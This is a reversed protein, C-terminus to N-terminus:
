NFRKPVKRRGGEMWSGFGRQWALVVSDVVRADNCLRAAMAVPGGM